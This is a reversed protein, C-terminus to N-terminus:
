IRGAIALDLAEAPGERRAIPDHLDRVVVVLIDIVAVDTIDVVDIGIDAFKVGAEVLAAPGLRQSGRHRGSEEPWGSCRPTQGPYDGHSPNRQLMAYHPTMIPIVM